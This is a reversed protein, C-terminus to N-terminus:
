TQSPEVWGTDDDIGLTLAEERTIPRRTCRCGWDLIREAMVDALPSDKHAVKDNLAVHNKESPIGTGDDRERGDDAGQWQWYPFLEGVVPDALVEATGQDFSQHMFTRGITEADGVFSLGADDMRKAWEEKSEGLQTSTALEQRLQDNISAAWIDFDGIVKRAAADIRTALYDKSVVLKDLLWDVANQLKPWRFDFLGLRKVEKKTLYL